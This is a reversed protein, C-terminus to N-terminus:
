ATTRREVPLATLLLGLSTPLLAAAGAAQLVRFAILWWLGPAFACALSAATFVSLGVIFGAKRGYRDALRGAPILLAAFVITYANLVWSLNALSSGPYEAGISNFAVNVVFVDLMAMFAASCLVVLILTSRDRAPAPRQARDARIPRTLSM